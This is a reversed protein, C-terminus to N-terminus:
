FVSNENSLPSLLNRSRLINIVKEVSEMLEETETDIILEPKEPPEYPSSIGTYESIIGLRAKKYLGKVDRLECIDLSAKCYVEIFSNKDFLKRVDARDKRYPSIFATLTIVGAEVMLKSVEGIRRINEKRDTEGFQLDSSLGHRINDGDLVITRCKKSYLRKEVAHALTSKGSGSLGTFWVLFSKHNNLKNRLDHTILSQHWIANNQNLISM